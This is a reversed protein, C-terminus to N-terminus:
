DRKSEEPMQWEPLVFDGLLDGETAPPAEASTEAYQAARKADGARRYAQSLLRRAQVNGPSLHLAEELEAIADSVRGVTLETKGLELHAEASTPNLRIAEQFVPIAEGRKGARDLSLGRFYSLLFMAGLKQEAASLVSAAEEAQGTRLLVQALGIYSTPLPDGADVLNRFVAEAEEYHGASLDAAGLRLHLAYSKPSARLGDQVASIAEAFRSLEMLERTLNLWHEERDPALAAARRLALVARDGQGVRAYAIGALSWWPVIQGSEWQTSHQASIFDQVQDAAEEYRGASLHALALDFQVWPAHAPGQRASLRRLLAIAEDSERVALLLSAVRVSQADPIPLSALRHLTKRAEEQRGLALYGEAAQILFGPERPWPVDSLELERFADAYFQGDLQVRALYYHAFSDKPSLGVARVLAERARELNHETWALYGLNRYADEMLPDLRIAEQYEAGAEKDQGLRARVIGLFNHIRPDNPNEREAATLEVLAAQPRDEKLLSLGKKFSEGQSTSDERPIRQQNHDSWGHSIPPLLLGTAWLCSVFGLFRPKLKMQRDNPMPMSLLQSGRTEAIGDL